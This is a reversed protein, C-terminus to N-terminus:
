TASFSDSIKVDFPCVAVRRKAPITGLLIPLFLPFYTVFAVDQTQTQMM